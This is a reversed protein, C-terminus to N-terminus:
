RCEKQWAIVRPCEPDPMSPDGVYASVVACGGRCVSAISCTSCPDLLRDSRERYLTLTPDFTGLQDSTVTSEELFSCPRVLGDNSLGALHRGAECGFIGHKALTEGSFATQSLFPVLACDIRVHAKPSFRCVLSELLAPFREMQERTCRRSLYSLDKARGQPKYRLLQMERAGAAFVIEATREVHDFSIRTLVTNVGVSIGAQALREISRKAAAAGKFGRVDQYVADDGDFSVNVQEFEMLTDLKAPDLALGSTTIVPLLGFSRALKAIAKLEPHSTPEGGGFAVTLVNADRLARFRAELAELSVHSGNASANTYCGVCNAACHTTISVHVELPTNPAALPLATVDIGLTDLLAHPMAVTAHLDGLPTEIRKTSQVWAGWEERRINPDHEHPRTTRPM